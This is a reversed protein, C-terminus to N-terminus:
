TKYMRETQRYADCYVCTNDCSWGIDIKIKEQKKLISKLSDSRVNGIFIYSAPCLKAIGHAEIVLTARGDCHRNGLKPGIQLPYHYGLEKDLRWIKRCLKERKEKSVDLEKTVRCPLYLFDAYPIIGNNREWKWISPIEYYNKSTIVTDLAFRDTNTFGAELLFKIHSPVKVSSYNVYKYIRKNGTLCENIEPKLSYLKGVVSINNEFLKKAIKKDVLTGNTFLIPTIGLENCRDVLRFFLNKNLLPEGEGYFCVSEVGLKKGQTILGELEDPTLLEPETIQKKLDTRSKIGHETFCFPCELNCNENYALFLLLLKGDKKADEIKKKSFEYGRLEQPLKYEM